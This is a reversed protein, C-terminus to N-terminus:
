VEADINMQRIIEKKYALPIDVRLSKVNHVHVLRGKEIDKVCEGIAANYKIIKEGKTINRLAIKNGFPINEKAEVTYLEKNNSTIIWVLEGAKIDELATAVIDKDEMVIMKKVM